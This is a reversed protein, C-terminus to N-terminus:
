RASSSLSQRRLGDLERTLAANDRTAAPRASWAAVIESQRREFEAQRPDVATPAFTAAAWQQLRQARMSEDPVTVEFIASKVQRAEAASLEALRLREPLGDDLAQALPLLDAASAGATRAERFRRLTDSWAFYSTLRRLEAPGDPRGRLERTLADWQKPGVVATPADIPRSQETPATVAARAHAGAAPTASEAPGAPREIALQSLAAVGAIVALGRLWSRPLAMCFLIQAEGASAL